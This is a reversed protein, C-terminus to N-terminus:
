KLVDFNLKEIIQACNYINQTAKLVGTETYDFNTISTEEEEIKDTLLQRILNRQDDNLQLKIITM